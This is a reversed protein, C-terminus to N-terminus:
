PNESKLEIWKDKFQLEELSLPIIENYEEQSTLHFSNCLNCFYYRKEHRWQKNKNRKVENLITKATKLSFCQKTCM